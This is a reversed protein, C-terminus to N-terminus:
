SGRCSWTRSPVLAPSSPMASLTLDRVGSCQGGGGVQWWQQDWGGVAHTGRHHHLQLALCVRELNGHLLQLSDAVKERICHGNSHSEAPQLATSTRRSKSRGVPFLLNRNNNAPVKWIPAIFVPANVFQYNVSQRMCAFM